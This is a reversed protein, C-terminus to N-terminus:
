HYPAWRTRCTSVCEKGVRREASRSLDAASKGFPTRAAAEAGYIGPGWEAVNLYVELIRRKDWQLEILLTFWAEIAKRVFTRGPWLLVNKATQMSITSAGRLGDGSRYDDVARRLAAWDFGGHVCFLNDEAAIVAGRLAPAIREIPVWDRELGEGEFLRILMLPTLPPPVIRYVFILLPPGFAAALLLTIATRRLWVRWPLREKDQAPGPAPGRTRSPRPHRRSSTRQRDKSM